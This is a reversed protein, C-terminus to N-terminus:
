APLLIEDASEPYRGKVLDVMNKEYHVEDAAFLRVDLGSFEENHLYSTSCRATNRIDVLLDIRSFSKDSRIIRSKEISIDFVNYIFFYGCLMVCLLLLM